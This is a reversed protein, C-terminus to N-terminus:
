GLAAPPDISESASRRQLRQAGVPPLHLWFCAHPGLTLLYPSSGPDGLDVGGVIEVAKRGALWDPLQILAPQPDGSLNAVVMVADEEHRLAYTLLRPNDCEIFKVTGRGFAPHQRRVQVLRRVFALLSEPDSKLSEVNVGSYGYNPDNILPAVLRGASAASFGGNVGATWQMPTRLGDRDRLDCNDGMGIEDGYYLVPTGPLGLLLQHALQLCARDNDLLPALRRRIGHNL